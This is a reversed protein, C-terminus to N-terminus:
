VSLLEASDVFVNHRKFANPTESAISQDAFPDVIWPRDLTRAPESTWAPIPLGSTGLHHEVLAAIFADFRPDGVLAPPAASLAVRIVSDELTLDDNIQILERYAREEDGRLLSAYIADAAASVTRRRTPLLAISYGLRKILRDLHDVAPSHRGREFAAISPQPVGTVAAFERQSLAKERRVQRVLTAAATM